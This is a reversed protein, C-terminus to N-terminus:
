PMARGEAKYKADRLRRRADEVPMGMRYLDMALEMMWPTETLSMDLKAELTEIFRIM